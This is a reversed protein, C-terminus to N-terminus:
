ALPLALSLKREFPGPCTYEAQSGDITVFSTSGRSPHDAPNPASPVREYWLDCNLQIDQQGIYGALWASEHTPSSCKILAFRAADNDIFHIVVRDKLCSGWLARTTLCPVLESQGM